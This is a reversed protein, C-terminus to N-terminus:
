TRFRREALQMISSVMEQVTDARVDMDMLTRKIQRRMERKTDEKNQWDVVALTKITSVITEAAQKLFTTDASEHVSGLEIGLRHTEPSHTYYTGKATILDYFPAVDAELGLKRAYLEPKQVEKLLDGLLRLREASDIREQRYDNIIRELRQRLSEYYVPNEDLKIHIEHKVAHEIESAKADPSTIKGLEKEFDPSLISIPEVVRTIGDVRLHEEILQRVKEGCGSINLTDDRYRTRARQRIEALWKLDKSYQLARPNPLLIDLYKSFRLFLQDFAVRRDEPELYLVCRDNYEGEDTGKPIDRFFNIAANHAAQLRPLIENRYNTLVMGIIGDESYMKLAKQLEDSVGWYDVVLGYDKREYKRNVRGMAQLLTHERLPSDLYMVQEIPSDFGTLLKDCVILIKPDDEEKFQRIIEAEENKTRNFRQFAKGDNHNVTILADHSPAKLEDLIRNYGIAAWRNYAVIQAKFKNPMITKEYHSILDLCIERIRQPATAIADLTGYKKKIAERECESYDAFYRDFLADISSGTISLNPMRGEYYIPVTVEDNVSQNHDYKDIYSGFTQFTDRDNKFIPTGTFGLFCANPLARRMNAALSRYQSRHAEDVLVFINSYETLIPYMGAADQFKQVTTMITQGVPQTLLDKLHESTRTRIPNPFGCAKFTGHIQQDLDTRDTVIVMTPNELEKIRRLKVAAWLMTLSKGSGQWHWIVGGTRKKNKKDTVRAIIKNAARYQQYKALKKVVKGYEREFVVFNRIIDLLNDRVCVGYLFIDQPTAIKGIERDVDERSKPFPDKWEAWHREETYNTGYKVKDRHTVAIVQVTHFLRPCGLNNFSSGIEQYRLVQTLGQEMPKVLDPAKCEIVVVPIGNIFLVLDPYNERYNNVQFQRVVHFKNNDLNEYDILFVDQNKQGAGDDLDQLVTTGRELMGYIKENAEMVSTAVVNTINRIVRQVNEDNIWPNLSKIADRLIPVLVTEKLSGRMKETERTDLETWGLNNTLVEVAPNEVETLEKADRTM